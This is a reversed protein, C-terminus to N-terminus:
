AFREDLLKTTVCNQRAFSVLDHWRPENGLSSKYPIRDEDQLCFWKKDSIFRIVENKSRPKRLEFLAVLLLSM